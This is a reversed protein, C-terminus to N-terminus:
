YRNQMFCITIVQTSEHDSADAPSHGSSEADPLNLDRNNLNLSSSFPARSNGSTTSSKIRTVLERPILNARKELWKLLGKDPNLVEISRIFVCQNRTPSPPTPGVRFDFSNYDNSTYDWSIKGDVIGAASVMASVGASRSAGSFSLMGWMSTKDCGTVVFLSGSRGRQRAFEYWQSAYREAVSQLAPINLLDEGSAGEPLYLLAGESGTFSARFAIGSPISFCLAILNRWFFFRCDVYSPGSNSLEVNFDSKHYRGSSIITGASHMYTQKFIDRLPLIIQTFGNPLGDHNTPHSPPLCLNFLIDFGGPSTFQGVAGICLGEDRSGVPVNLNENCEPIWLARGHGKRGILKSYVQSM